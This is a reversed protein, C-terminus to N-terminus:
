TKALSTGMTLELIALSGGEWGGSLIASMSTFNVSQSFDCTCIFNHISNPSLNPLVMNRCLCVFYAILLSQPPVTLLKSLMQM